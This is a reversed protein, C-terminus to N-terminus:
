PRYQKGTGLVIVLWGAGKMTPVSLDERDSAIAPDFTDCGGIGGRSMRCLVDALRYIASYM